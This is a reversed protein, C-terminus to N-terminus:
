EGPYRLGWAARLTDMTEMLWLTEDLPMVPHETQGARLCEGVAVAQYNYGNGIIPLEIYSTEKGYVELTMSTPCWFRHDITIRGESGNIVATQPTDTRVASALLALAGSEYGLMYASQDDTGTGGFEAMGSVRNPKGFIMSALSLPYIGVDLLAGGGLDPNFLRHQPDFPARFGFDATLLRSQGIAGATLLQRVRVMLPFFRTWMAEMLFLGHARATNIMEGAERANMAFPKECLVPKGANLCMLTNAYHFPHPSSVYVVDVETDYAVQDYSAYRRPINFRDGFADATAQSRSGVAVLEADPVAQLGKAFLDAIYGTGLIGWRTKHQMITGKANKDTHSHCHYRTGVSHAM